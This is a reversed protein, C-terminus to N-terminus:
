SLFDVICQGVRDSAGSGGLKQKLQSYHEKIQANDKQINKIESVLNPVNFESQILEKVVEHDM